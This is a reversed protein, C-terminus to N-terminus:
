AGAGVTALHRPRIRCAMAEVARAAANGDGYPNTEIPPFAVQSAGGEAGRAALDAITTPDDALVNCGGVLTEPWETEARVTTCVVGLLFAEKQLGGSDTILGDSGLMAAIMARYPLPDTPRLAGTDLRLGFSAARNALRPHVLLRVPLRCASLGAIVAALREPNDTNAARHITAVLYPGDGGWTPETGATTGSTEIAQRTRLLIDVMVDGVLSTRGGLGEGALNTVALDTPALLLDSLHDTVIRNHEEPMTRNHSRLGAELHAVPWGQKAATLAGAVTANTDGYLLVWDPHQTEFVPELGVMAAATQEAHSGTGVGLNVIPDPLELDVFFAGSLLRDYHQGTHAVVHEHGAMSLAHTIAALKVFQPRSGVVSVVKV